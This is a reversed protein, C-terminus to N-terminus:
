GQNTPYTQTFFEEGTTGYMTVKWHTNDVLEYCEVASEKGDNTTWTREFRNEEKNFIYGRSLLDETFRVIEPNPPEEPKEWFLAYNLNFFRNFISM